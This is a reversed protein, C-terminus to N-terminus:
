GAWGPPGLGETHAAPGSAGRPSPLSGPPLGPDSVAAGARRPPPGNTVSSSPVNKDQLQM